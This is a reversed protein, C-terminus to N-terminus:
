NKIAKQIAVRVGATGSYAYFAGLVQGTKGSYITVINSGGPGQGTVYDDTGDGDLDGVAVSVGQGDGTAYAQGGRLWTGDLAWVGYYNNGNPGQGGVVRKVGDGLVNGIGVNVGTSAPFTRFAALIQGTNGSYITVINSGGPGQGVVYDDFGDGDVDGVAVSVGQGDGTAYAQGGRLWTGDLAWVGYYNNGNPGQGVVIRKLGGGTVAGVAVSVGSNGAFAQFSSLVAGTAGSYITVRNQGGPGEGVVYDAIGDGDVDGVAVSVGTTGPFTPLSDLLQGTTGNYTNVLNQGGPGQAAIIEARSSQQSPFMLAFTSYSTTTTASVQNNVADVTSTLPIYTGADLDVAFIQLDNENAGLPLQRANYKM